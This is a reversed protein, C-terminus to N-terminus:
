KDKHEIELRGEKLGITIKTGGAIQGAVLERGLRTELECGIRTELERRLSRKLPRFAFDPL